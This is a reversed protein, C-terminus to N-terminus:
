SVERHLAMLAAAEEPAVVAVAFGTHVLVHTGVAVVTGDLTLPALSVRREAGDIDVVAEHREDDVVLVRGALSLCM